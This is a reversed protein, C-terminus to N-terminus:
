VVESNEDDLLEDLLSDNTDAIENDDIVKAKMDPEGAPMSEEVEEGELTPANEEAEFASTDDSVKKVKRANGVAKNLAVYLKNLANRSVADDAIKEDIGEAVLAAVYQLKDLDSTSSIYLKGLMGMIAKKEEGTTLESCAASGSFDISSKGSCGHNMASKLLSKAIDLHSEVDALNAEQNGAEDWGVAAQDQTVLKRPDTWDVLMTGIVNLGVMAEGEELEDSLTALTHMVAAVISAMREMNVRRSYCFVPLFYSLAQRVGANGKTVPDFYCIVIQKLLDEDYVVSTLMLKSSATIAASQVEPTHEAKIGKIYLKNISKQMNAGDDQTALLSRHTTLIDTLIHIASIKLTDHGKNFCHLFLTM